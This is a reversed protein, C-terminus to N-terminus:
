ILNPFKQLSTYSSIQIANNQWEASKRLLFTLETQKRFDNLDHIVPLLPPPTQDCPALGSLTIIGISFDVRFLNRCM